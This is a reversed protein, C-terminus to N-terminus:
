GKSIPPGPEPALHVSAELDSPQNGHLRDWEGRWREPVHIRRVDPDMLLELIAAEYVPIAAVFLDGDENFVRGKGGGGAENAERLPHFGEKM